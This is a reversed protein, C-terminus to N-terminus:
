AGTYGFEAQWKCRRYDLRLWHPFYREPKVVPMDVLPPMEGDCDSISCTRTAVPRFRVLLRDTLPIYGEASPAERVYVRKRILCSFYLELELCLPQARRDLQRRAAASIDLHFSKGRISLTESM